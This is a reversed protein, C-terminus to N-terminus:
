DRGFVVNNVKDFFRWIKKYFNTHTGIFYSLEAIAAGAFVDIIYHQKTFQTSAFVLVAFVASFVKYWVPIHKQKRIGIFCMWSVLCHISPFLNSAPDATYVFRMLISSLGNRTIEPRVNTTPLLIFFVGCILRSLYDGTAFKYWHERETRSIMIYNVAWFAFCILYIYIWEKVFPLSKDFKTSLDYHKANKMLLQTGTYIASNLVFCSILSVVTQKPILKGVSKEYWIGFRTGGTKSEKKDRMDKIKRIGIIMMIGAPM